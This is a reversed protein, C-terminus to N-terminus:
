NVRQRQLKDLEMVLKERTEHDCTASKRVWYFLPREPLPADPNHRNAEATISEWFKEHKLKMVMKAAPYRNTALFVDICIKAVLARKPGGRVALFLGTKSWIDLAMIQHLFGVLIHVINGWKEHNECWGLIPVTFARSSGELISLCCSLTFKYSDRWSM